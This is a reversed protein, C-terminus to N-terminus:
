RAGECPEVEVVVDIDTKALIAIYELQADGIRFEARRKIRHLLVFFGRELEHALGIIAQEAVARRAGFTKGAM